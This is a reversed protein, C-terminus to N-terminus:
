SKPYAGAGSRIGYAGYAMGAGVHLAM